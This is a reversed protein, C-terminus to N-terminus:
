LVEGTKMTPVLYELNYAEKPTRCIYVRGSPLSKKIKAIDKWSKHIGVYGYVRLVGLITDTKTV